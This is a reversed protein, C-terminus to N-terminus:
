FGVIPRAYYDGTSYIYIPPNVTIPCDYTQWCPVDTPKTQKYQTIPIPNMIYSNACGTLFVFMIALLRM